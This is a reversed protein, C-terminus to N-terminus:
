KKIGVYIYFPASFIYEGKQYTKKIDALLEDFEIQTLFGNPEIFFHMDNIYNFGRSGEVFETEVDNYCDIKGEFLETKNFYGFVRRGMWGDCNDMWRSQLFNAYEYIAKNILKKNSGNCVISEWDRHVCVIQGRLKLIRHLEKIHSDIDTICELTDKHFILDFSNDSFDLTESANMQTLNVGLKNQEEISEFNKNSKDIGILKGSLNYKEKLYVLANANLCGVDLVSANQKIEVNNFIYDYVNQKFM